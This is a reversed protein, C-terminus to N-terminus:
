IMISPYYTDLPLWEAIIAYLTWGLPGRFRQGSRKCGNEWYNLSQHNSLYLIKPVKQHHLCQDLKQKNQFFLGLVFVYMIMFIISNLPHDAKAGSFKLDYVLSRVFNAGIAYTHSIYIPM